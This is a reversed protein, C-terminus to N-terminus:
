QPTFELTVVCNVAEGAGPASTFTVNLHQSSVTATIIHGNACPDSPVIAGVLPLAPLVKSVKSPTVSMTTSIGDGVINFIFTSTILLGTAPPQSPTEKAVAVSCLSIVAFTLLAMVKKM